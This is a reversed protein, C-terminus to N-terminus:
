SSCVIFVAVAIGRKQATAASKPMAKSNWPQAELGTAEAVDVAVEEAVGPTLVSDVMDSAASSLAVRWGLGASGNSDNLRSRSSIASFWLGRLCRQLRDFSANAPWSEDASNEAIEPPSRTDHCVVRAGRPVNRVFDANAPDGRFLIKGGPGVVLTTFRSIGLPGILEATGEVAQWEWGSRVTVTVRPDALLRRRKFADGRVVFGLVTAGGIPHPLLGANVVSSSVTGDVRGISVVALGHDAAILRAMQGLDVM